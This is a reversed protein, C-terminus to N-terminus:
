NLIFYGVENKSLGHGFNDAFIHIFHYLGGIPYSSNSFESSTNLEKM